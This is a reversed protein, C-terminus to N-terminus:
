LRCTACRENQIGESRRGRKIVKKREREKMEESANHKTKKMEKRERM